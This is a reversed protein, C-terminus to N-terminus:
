ADYTRRKIPHIKQLPDVVFNISFKNQLQLKVKLLFSGFHYPEM